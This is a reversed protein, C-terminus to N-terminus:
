EFRRLGDTAGTVFVEPRPWDRDAFLAELMSRLADVKEPPMLAIACGGFGGGTMRAGIAGRELAADVAVDLEPSSVDFEDRLSAHSATMMAGFAAWEGHGLAKAAGRVRANETLVHQTRAKLLPDTLSIMADLGAASLNPLELAARAQEVEDRRKGYAGTAHDHRTRTDVVALVLGAERWSVPVPTSEPEAGSFDLLQAHDAQAFCIAWQDLLGTPAGVYDNEARAALHAVQEPSISAGAFSAAAMITACSVAASSSLGAGVPLDSEIVIDLGPPVIGADVSARIAAVTRDAWGTVPETALRDIEVSVGRSWIHTHQDSRQRAKLTIGRDIAIPLAFGGCYDTHDGILNVRGPARWQRIESM